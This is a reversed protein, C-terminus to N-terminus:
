KKHERTLEDYLEKSLENQEYAIKARNLKAEITNIQGEVEHLNFFKTPPMSACRVANGDKDIEFMHGRCERADPLLFDSYSALQYTFIRYVTSDRNQDVYYFPSDGECLTMLNAYHEQFTNM